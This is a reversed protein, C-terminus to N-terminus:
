ALSHAIVQGEAESCCVGFTTVEHLLAGYSPVIHDNAGLPGTREDGDVHYTFSVHFPRRGANVISFM